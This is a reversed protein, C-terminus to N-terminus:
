RHDCVFIQHYTVKEPKLGDSQSPGFATVRCEVSMAADLEGSYPQYHM